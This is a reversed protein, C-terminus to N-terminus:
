IELYPIVLYATQGAVLFTNWAQSSMLLSMSKEPLRMLDESHAPELKHSMESGDM